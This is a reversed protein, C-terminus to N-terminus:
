QQRSEGEITEDNDKSNDGETNSQDNPQDNPQNPTPTIHQAIKELTKNLDDINTQIQAADDSEQVAKLSEIKQTIETKLEEPLKEAHEKVLKEAAFITTVAQNKIEAQEKRKKDEEAFKEAEDVMDKVQDENLGSSSQIVIKQEKGTGKDKASVNVIGNADIDFTVEVQPVGRPAPLIGDLIFKGVSKNDTAMSREGQLVNIEVSTQSDAATTFVQTKQTPITTNREILTTSVSGLTEIGLSLPTVDLLLVDQVDGQLVGAQIAAGLAVAEDPNIEKNSEKGFISEVKEQIAPM